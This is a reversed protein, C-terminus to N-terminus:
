FYRALALRLRIRDTKFYAISSDIRSYSLNAQPSFGFVRVKRNGLTLRASYRWDQRPEPSFIAMPADYGARSVSGGVGFSIGMPLEGGFGASVGVETSSYTAADLWDRRVFGGGSVVLTQGLAQEVNAYLGGQWGSYSSDFRADTSRLDLQLGVRRRPGLTVQAGAKVGAQRSALRGAFWRQAGVAQASLSTDGTVRLEPGAAVQMVHDDFNSGAYDTGNIDVDTLLAWTSSLPVRVGGSVSATAGLGSRAQADKDLAVPLTSDGFHVTVSDNGTANNINTDPAIGLDVDLRWARRSRIVERAGRVARAVDPPLEGDQEALRFQRDASASQGLGLMARALELRVRTQTPDDALIGKFISAAHAFDSQESAAYGALFRSQLRMEPAQGLAQILVGAEDFRRARVLTEARQLLQSPTLRVQCIGAICDPAAGDEAAASSAVVSTALVLLPALRRM